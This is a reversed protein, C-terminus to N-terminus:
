ACIALKGMNDLHIDHEDMKILEDLSWKARADELTLGEKCFVQIGDRQPEGLIAMGDFLLLLGNNETKYSTYCLESFEDGMDVDLVQTTVKYTENM